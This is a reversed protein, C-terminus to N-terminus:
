KLNQTQSGCLFGIFYMLTRPLLKDFHPFLLLSVSMKWLVTHGNLLLVWTFASFSPNVELMTILTKGLSLMICVSSDVYANISLLHEGYSGFCCFAPVSLYRTCDVSEKALFVHDEALSFQSDNYFCKGFSRYFLIGGCGSM